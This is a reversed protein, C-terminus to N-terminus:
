KAGATMHEPRISLGQPYHQTSWFPLSRDRPLKGFSQLTLAPLTRLSPKTEGGVCNKKLSPYHSTWPRVVSSPSVALDTPGLGVNEGRQQASLHTREQSAARKGLGEMKPKEPTRQLWRAPGLSSGLKAMSQGSIVCKDTEFTVNAPCGLASVRLGQKVTGQPNWSATGLPDGSTM